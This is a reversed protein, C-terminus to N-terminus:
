VARKEQQLMSKVYLFAPSNEECGLWGVCQEGALRACVADDFDKHYGLHKEKYGLTLKAEWLNVRKNYYVGRIGSTNNSRFSTNMANWAHVVERLNDIANNSKRTDIHDLECIPMVGYVYLWALRHSPYLKGDIRIGHYGHKILGGAPAGKKAKGGFSNRKEKWTFAGTTPNYDLISKLYDQSMVPKM